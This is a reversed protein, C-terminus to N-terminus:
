LKKQCATAVVSVVYAVVGIAIFGFAGFLWLKFKTEVIPLAILGIGSLGWGFLYPLFTVGGIFLANVVTQQINQRARDVKANHQAVKRKLEPDEALIEEESIELSPRLPRFPIKM